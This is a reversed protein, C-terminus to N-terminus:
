MGLLLVDPKKEEEADSATQSPRSGLTGRFGPPGELLLQSEKRSITITNTDVLAPLAYVGSSCEGIYITPSHLIYSFM